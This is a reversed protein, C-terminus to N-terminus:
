HTCRVLTTELRTPAGQPRSGHQVWAMMHSLPEGSRMGGVEDSPLAHEREASDRWAREELRATTAQEAGDGDQEDGQEGDGPLLPLIAM